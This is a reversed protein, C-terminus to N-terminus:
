RGGAREPRQQTCRRGRCSGAVSGHEAVPSPERGVPRRAHDVQKGNASFKWQEVDDLHMGVYNLLKLMIPKACDNLAAADRDFDVVAKGSIKNDVSITLTIGQMTGLVRVVENENQPTIGAVDNQDLWARINPVGYAGELDMAMVIDTSDSLTKLVNRIYDSTVNGEPKIPMRVWRSIQSREAPTISALVNHELPVFYANIPSAVADKDWVRDIHGGEDKALSELSPLQDMEMLSMEWYSDFTSPKVNAAMLVQKAGPPIMMPQKAWADALRQDWGAQKGYPSQVLRAVNVAVIVNTAPPLREALTPFAAQVQAQAALLLTVLLIRGTWDISKTMAKELNM